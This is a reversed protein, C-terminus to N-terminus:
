IANAVAEKVILVVLAATDLPVAGDDAGSEPLEVRGPYNLALEACVQRLSDALGPAAEKAQVPARPSIPVARQDTSQRPASAMAVRSASRLGVSATPKRM